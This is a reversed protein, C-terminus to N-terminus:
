SSRQLPRQRSARLLWLRLRKESVKVSVGVRREHESLMWCLRRRELRVAVGRECVKLAKNTDCMALYQVQKVNAKGKGITEGSTFLGGHM